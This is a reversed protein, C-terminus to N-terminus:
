VDVRPLRVADGQRQRPGEHGRAAPTQLRQCFGGLRAREQSGGGARGTIYDGIKALQTLPGIYNWGKRFVQQIEHDTIAPDTYWHAPLSEGRDLAALLEAPNGLIQSM